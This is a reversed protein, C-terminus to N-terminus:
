VVHNGEVHSHDAPELLVEAVVQRRALHLLMAVDVEGHLTRQALYTCLCSGREGQEVPGQKLEAPHARELEHEPTHEHPPTGSGPLARPGRDAFGAVAALRRLKRLGKLIIQRMREPSVDFCGGCARLTLGPEPGLGFRLELAKSERDRLSAVWSPLAALQEGRLVCQEPDPPELGGGGLGLLAKGVLRYGGRRQVLNVVRDLDEECSTWREMDDDGCFRATIVEPYISAMFSTFAGRRWYAVKCWRLLSEGSGKFQPHVLWLRRFAPLRSPREADFDPCAELVERVQQADRPDLTPRELSSCVLVRQRVQVQAISSGAGELLPRRDSPADAGILAGCFYEEGPSMLLDMPLVPPRPLSRPLLVV